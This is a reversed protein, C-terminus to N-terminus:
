SATVYPIIDNSNAPGAQGSQEGNSWRVRVGAKM